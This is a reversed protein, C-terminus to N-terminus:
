KIKAGKKNNKQCLFQAPSGKAPERETGAPLPVKCLFGESTGAQDRCPGRWMNEEGDEEEPLPVKCLIREHTGTRDGGASSSAPSGKVPGQETGELDRWM